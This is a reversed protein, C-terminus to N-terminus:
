KAPPSNYTASSRTGSGTPPPPMFEVPTPILVERNGARNFYRLLMQPTLQSSETRPEPLPAQPQLTSDVPPAPTVEPKAPQEPAMPVTPADTSEAAAPPVIAQEPKPATEVANTVTTDSMKLPPLVAAPDYHPTAVQFRIQAPGVVALYNHKEGAATGVCM